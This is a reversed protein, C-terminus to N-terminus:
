FLGEPPVAEHPYDRNRQRARAIAVGEDIFPEAYIEYTMDTPVHTRNWILRVAFVNRGRIYQTMPGSDHWPEVVASEDNDLIFLARTPM